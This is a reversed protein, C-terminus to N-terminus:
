NIILNIEKLSDFIVGFTPEPLLFISCILGVINKVLATYLAENMWFLRYSFSVFVLVRLNESKM